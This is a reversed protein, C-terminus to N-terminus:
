GRTKEAITPLPAGLENTSAVAALVVWWGLAIIVWIRSM